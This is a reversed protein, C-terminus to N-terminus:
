TVIPDSHRMRGNKNAIAKKRVEEFDLRLEDSSNGEEGLEIPDLVSPCEGVEGSLSESSERIPLPTDM